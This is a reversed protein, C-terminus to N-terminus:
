LDALDVDSEEAGLCEGTGCEGPDEWLDISIDFIPSQEPEFAAPAPFCQQWISANGRAILCSIANRTQTQLKRVGGMQRKSMHSAVLYCLNHAEQGMRGFSDVAFPFFDRHM